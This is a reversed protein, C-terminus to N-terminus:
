FDKKLSNFVGRLFYTIIIISVGLIPIYYWFLNMLDFYHHLTRALFLNSYPRFLIIVLFLLYVLSILFSLSAGQSSSIRIPNKEKYNAFMGGMGLNISMITISATLTTILAFIVMPARFRLNSFFCLVISILIILIGVNFLKSVLIQKISIPSTKIKWFTQGELSILPFIFRLSLTTILLLNFIFIALYIMAQLYFYGLGYYKIGSVSIVFIVILFLLLLLHIVQSPERLFLTVDKSAIAQIKNKLFSTDTLFGSIEKTKRKSNLESSIKSNLLWTEFYYKKGILFSASFLIFALSFQLYSYSVAAFYNEHIISYATQSLWNNPLYKLVPPILNGLYKDKDFVPYFKMVTTVLQKPSNLNFFLIITSVYGFVLTYIVRKVGFKNALKLVVLLLIVGLSGASIMFPLFNFCLLLFQGISLKFYVSYGLLFSFLVMLLTSSSYFFNDLFKISFINSPEIPKTLLYNVEASKYLTSYSVIINGVNISIFFIFLVMSIFEHLLFHGVVVDTLLFKILTKSFLFAGIAFSVYISGSGLNRMIYSLTIKSDPRIFATIKYRLIHIIQKM